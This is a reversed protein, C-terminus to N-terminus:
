QELPRVLTQAGQFLLQFFLVVDDAMRFDHLEELGVIVTQLAVLFGLFSGTVRVPVRLELM